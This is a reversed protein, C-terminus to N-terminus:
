FKKFRFVMFVFGRSHVVLDRFSFGKTPTKLTKNSLVCVTFYNVNTFFFISVQCFLDLVVVIFNYGEMHFCLLLHFSFKLLYWIRDSHKNMYFVDFPFNKYDLSFFNHLFNESNKKM